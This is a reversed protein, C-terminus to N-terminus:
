SNPQSTINSRRSATLVPPQIPAVISKTQTFSVKKIFPGGKKPKNSKSNTTPALIQEGLELDEDLAELKSGAVPLTGHRLIPPIKFKPPDRRNLKASKLSKRSWRVSITFSDDSFKPPEFVAPPVMHTGGVSPMDAMLETVIFTSPDPITSFPAAIISKKTFSADDRPMRRPTTSPNATPKHNDVSISVNPNNSERDGLSEIFPAFTFNPKSKVTMHKRILNTLLKLPRPHAPVTDAILSFSNHEHIADQDLPHERSENNPANQKPSRLPKSPM